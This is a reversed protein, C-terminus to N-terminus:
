LLCRSSLCVLGAFRALAARARRCRCRGFAGARGVIGPFVRFIGVFAKLCGPSTDPFIGVDPFIGIHAARAGPWPTAHAAGRDRAGQRTM